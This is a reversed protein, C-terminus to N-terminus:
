NSKQLDIIEGDVNEGDCIRSLAMSMAQMRRIVQGLSNHHVQILPRSNLAHIEMRHLLSKKKTLKRHQKIIWIYVAKWELRTINDKQLNHEDVKETPVFM